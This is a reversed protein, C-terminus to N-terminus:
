YSSQEWMLECQAADAIVKRKKKRPLLENEVTSCCHRRWTLGEPGEPVSAM